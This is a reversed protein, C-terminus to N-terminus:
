TSVQELKSNNKISGNNPQYGVKIKPPSGFGDNGEFDDDYDSM